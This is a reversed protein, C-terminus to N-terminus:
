DFRIVQLAENNKAIIYAQKGAITIPIINRVQGDIKLNRIPEVLFNNKQNLLITGYDSDFRGLQINNDYYNGALLMDQMGDKNVDLIIGANFSSWQAHYPMATTEYNGNGINKIIANSTFNVQHKIATSLKQKGFIEQVSAKAYDAAYLYKKKLLPIRKEIEMKSSLPIEVHQLYYTVIPEAKGNDDYDNYYMTVPEAESAALKNNIGMNGAIFDINGDNNMDFPIVMNWFGKKDSITKATYKNKNNVYAVIGGWYSCTVLDIDKDNDMDIWIANTIMDAKLLDKCYTTTVNTFIGSGDNQLLYSSVNIGYNWPEAHCGIFLDIDGDSDFDNPKLVSQTQFINPFANEKKTLNGKGDNLYLMPMTLKDKNYFENGGSTILLDVHSDKNIDIWTAGTPECMSDQFLQPQATKIFKGLNNQIFVASHYTKSSGIFVDELGDHNIDAVALAPGRTTNMFPILPERDFENFINEQHTYLLGIETTIDTATITQQYNKQLLNNYNFKPLGLRYKKTISKNSEISINEYSNDPWILIASDIVVQQLGIHLPVQMSSQFGHVPYQEYTQKGTKTFLILKSGLANINNPTGQLTVSAYNNSTDNNTNNKYILVNDDINNVIIDLDGDNDLDAYASGNSFTATQTTIDDTVNTFQTNGKNTFFQNPLKIEPFTNILDMEKTGIGHTRLSQQITEDSIFNVYDIDNMRKPIGNSIFLDKLGDNNYDLWLPAWSWDTNYVGAYQGIESFTGNGNNHQLNNRAYQYNYGYNIKINYINYDDEALSRKHMYPQYPLMDVSIIEPLADNNVDAVDVGMSFMSTHKIQATLSDKYTGNKQNIYLYDNEHFDNGVYIDPYGDMNIDAIAVGLGYGIKSGNIGVQKTVDTFGGASTGDKQKVIDNRFMRQGAISDYSNIFNARPAYNGEHNISHNLLFVDLDGDMDYDVFAAQTGFGSFALGYKETEDIFLPISDKSLGTCILLQNTSLLNKYHGVRSIYIDLLGDNNIDIISAGTNWAGDNKIGSEKTVETFRMNGKNLYLTNSTQNACFFLDILGDNNFDGAAVGAGNYYYMYSLLNMDKTPTLKNSFQIGTQKSDLTDFLKPKKSKSNCSLLILIICSCFYLIFTKLTKNM